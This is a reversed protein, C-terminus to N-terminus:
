RHGQAFQAQPPDKRRGRGPGQRYAGGVGRKGRGEPYIRIVTSTKIAYALKSWDPREFLGWGVILTSSNQYNGSLNMDISSHANIRIEPQFFNMREVFRELKKAMIALQPEDVGPAHLIAMTKFM